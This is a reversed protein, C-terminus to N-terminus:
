KYQSSDYQGRGLNAWFGRYAPSAAEAPAVFMSHHRGTIEALEYGLATCFNVNATQIEGTLGFQIIAKSRDIASLIASSDSSLVSLVNPMFDGVDTLM